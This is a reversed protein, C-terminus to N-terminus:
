HGGLWLQRQQIDPCWFFKGFDMDRLGPVNRKILQWRIREGKILLLGNIQNAPSLWPGHMRRCVQCPFAEALRHDHCSARQGPDISVQRYFTRAAM